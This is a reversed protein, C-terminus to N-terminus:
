SGSVDLRSRAGGQELWERAQQRTEDRALPLTITFTAGHGRGASAASITGGHLEVLHRTITLGLGLGSRQRAVNNDARQFREFLHPLWGPDIGQGSDSIELISADATARIRVDVHGGPPTFKIANSLVNWAIQRLRERDGTVSVDPAVDLDANIAVSRARATPELEELAGRIPNDPFVDFIDRGLIGARTTMTAQLYAESSAVIKFDPSLVLYLGPASEFLARFDLSSGPM